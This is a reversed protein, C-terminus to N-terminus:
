DWHPKGFCDVRDFIGKIRFEEPIIAGEENVMGNRMFGSAIIQDQTANPLLDGALQEILFQDYPMDDNLANIVWERYIWQDRMKDKEFGNTDAYRALDLWHRAWKEGFAPRQMLDDVLNEVSKTPSKKYVSLFNEIEAPSPPLGILDLFLRRLLTAPGASPSPEIGEAELRERVFADIPHTKKSVRVKKPIEFAWHKDYKGGEKIWQFLTNKEEASLEKKSDPPPMREESHESNIMYILESADPDGPVVAVIGELDAYAGEPTDLRRDAERAAEDPGHCDFCNGSLIPLVDRAYDITEGKAPIFVLFTLIASLRSIRSFPAM